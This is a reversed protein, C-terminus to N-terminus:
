ATERAAYHAEQKNMWALGHIFGFGVVSLGSVFMLLDFMGTSPPCGPYILKPALGVFLSLAWKGWRLPPIPGM